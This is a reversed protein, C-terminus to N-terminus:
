KKTLIISTACGFFHSKSTVDFGANQFYEIVRLCSGFAETYVGLMKYCEIDIFATLFECGNQVRCQFKWFHVVEAHAYFGSCKM